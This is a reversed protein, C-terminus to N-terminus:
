IRRCCFRSFHFKIDNDSADTVIFDSNSNEVHYFSKKVSQGLQFYSDIFTAESKRLFLNIEKHFGPALRSVYRNDLVTKIPDSYDDFDIYNSTVGFLFRTRKIKTEIEAPTKCVM